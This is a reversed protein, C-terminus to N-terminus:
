DMMKKHLNTIVLMGSQDPRDFSSVSHKIIIMLPPFGGLGSVAVIATIRLKINPIGLHKARSQDSPCYMYDPGIAYSFATEDMNILTATTHNHDLYMEHGITMIRLIEEETPIKKDQTTINRRRMNARNLFTRVWTSSFKLAQVKEFSLWNSQM